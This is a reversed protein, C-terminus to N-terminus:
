FQCSAIYENFQTLIEHVIAIFDAKTSYITLCAIDSAVRGESVYHVISANYKTATAIAFNIISTDSILNYDYTSNYWKEGSTIKLNRRIKEFKFERNLKIKFM